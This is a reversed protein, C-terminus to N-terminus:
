KYTVRVAVGDLSFTRGTSAAVDIIRLRFSSNATNAITWTRGWLNAAGGLVYTATSTTLTPTTQAATWSLGGNWSLQVCMQPAGATDDAKADLRVEIGAVTLGAPVTIGYNFFAHKDKGANTCSAITNTGSNADVAFATDAVYGNAPNTEFGNNDGASTTEPANAIPVLFETNGGIRLTLSKTVSVPPAASDTARASKRVTNETTSNTRSSPKGSARQGSRQLPRSM